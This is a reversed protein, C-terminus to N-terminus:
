SAEPYLLNACLAARLWAEAYHKVKAIFQFAFPLLAARTDISYPYARM